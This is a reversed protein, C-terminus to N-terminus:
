NLVYTLLAYMLVFVQVSINMAVNNMIDSLRFCGLPRDVLSRASLHARAM